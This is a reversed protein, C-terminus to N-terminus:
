RTYDEDTQPPGAYAVRVVYNTFLTLIEAPVGRQKTLKYNYTQIWDKSKSKPSHQKWKFPLKGKQM